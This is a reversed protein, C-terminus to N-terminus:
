YGYRQMIDGWRRIIEAEQEPSLRYKNTEYGANQRWYEEIHPRAQEFGSLGLQDYARELEGIPNVVLHEYRLEHFQDAKLLPRAEDLREYIIRFERFVKEELNPWLPKQLGHHRALSKWLNVTSPFVVRPDRVIHLFKAEPFLELLLPIRATHPPSKLVLRKGTRVTVEQLFRLFLRKWRRREHPKLDSLDLQGARHPQQPFAFDTYTSPLGMLALAFEDEQPREWGFLMNDMPRKEPLMWRCYRKFFHNTLLAHHPNFCDQMDPFGFQPDRILLEHLLTTGTRWHGIVFLPPQVTTNRVREGWWGNLICRLTFNMVSSISIIGAIYWHSPSVAFRNTALLRLWAFCDLGEWVRPAWERKRPATPESPSPTPSSPASSPARSVAASM